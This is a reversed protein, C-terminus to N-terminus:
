KGKTNYNHLTLKLKRVEAQHYDIQKLLSSNTQWVTAPYRMMLTPDTPLPNIPCQSYWPWRVDNWADLPDQIQNIVTTSDILDSTWDKAQQTRFEKVQELFSAWRELHTKTNLDSSSKLYQQRYFRNKRRDYFNRRTLRYTLCTDMLAEINERRARADAQLQRNAELSEKSRQAEAAAKQRAALAETLGPYLEELPKLAKLKGDAYLDDFKALFEDTLSSANTAM